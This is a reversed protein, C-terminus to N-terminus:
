QAQSYLTSHIASISHRLTSINFYILIRQSGVLLPSSFKMSLITCHKCMHLALRLRQLALRARACLHILKAEGLSTFRSVSASLPLTQLSAPTYIPPFEEMTAAGATATREGSEVEEVYQRALQVLKVLPSCPVAGGSTYELRYFYGSLIGLLSLNRKTESHHPNHVVLDFLIFAACVPM